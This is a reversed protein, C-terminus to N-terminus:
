PKFTIEGDITVNTAEFPHNSYTSGQYVEMTVNDFDLTIWKRSSGYLPDDTCSVFKISGQYEGRWTYDKHTTNGTGYIHYIVKISNAFDWLYKPDESNTVLYSIAQYPELEDGKKFTYITNADFNKLHFQAEISYLHNKSGPLMNGFEDWKTELSDAPMDNARIAFRCTSDDFMGYSCNINTGLINTGGYYYPKANLMFYYNGSRDVGSNNGSGNANGGSGDGDDDSGCATFSLAAVMM